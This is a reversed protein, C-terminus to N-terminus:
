RGFYLEGQLIKQCIPSKSEEEVSASGNRKEEEGKQPGAEVSIIVIATNSSKVRYQTKLVM